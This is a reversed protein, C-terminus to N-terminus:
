PYKEAIMQLIKIQQERDQENGLWAAALVEIYLREKESVKDLYSMAKKIADSAATSNRLDIYVEGLKLYALAFDPDIDIAKKLNKLAEEHNDIDYADRAELFYRYAEMSYTTIGEINRQAADIREQPIRMGQAIGKSLEDIQIRLISAVGEGRSSASRVLKKTQVDLVKVDTAFTEGAKTFSGLVIAGIGERRCLSFGLDSDIFQADDKGMQKLLDRMREWTAVYFYGTNELSTILLNPIAKQLYEFNKDGTQNEFSIVAISNEIKPAPVVQPKSWPHWFVIIAIFAVLVAL